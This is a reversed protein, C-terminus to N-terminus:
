RIKRPRPTNLNGEDRRYHVGDNADQSGCQSEFDEAPLVGFINVCGTSCANPGEPVAHNNGHHPPSPVLADYHHIGRCEIALPCAFHDLPHAVARGLSTRRTASQAAQGDHRPSDCLAAITGEGNIARAARTINGLGARDHESSAAGRRDHYEVDSYLVSSSESFSPVM